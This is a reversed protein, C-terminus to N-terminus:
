ITWSIESSNFYGGCDPLGLLCPSLDNELGDFCIQYASLSYWILEVYTLHRHNLFFFDAPMFNHRVICFINCSM